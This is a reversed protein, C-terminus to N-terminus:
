RDDGDGKIVGREKRSFLKELNKEAIEDLNLELEECLNALYWLIDGAEKKISEKKEKSFFGNFDRYAKKIANCIEGSEGALGMVCYPIALDKPYVATTIAKKQYENFTM